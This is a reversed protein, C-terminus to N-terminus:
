SVKGQADILIWGPWNEHVTDADSVEYNDHRLPRIMIKGPTRNLRAGWISFTSNACINHKCRSMLEMDHLSERGNNWDM